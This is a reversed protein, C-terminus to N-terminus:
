KYYGYNRLVLMFDDHQNNVERMDLWEVSYKTVSRVKEFWHNPAQCDEIVM